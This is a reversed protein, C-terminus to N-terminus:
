LSYTHIYTAFAKRSEADGAEDRPAPGQQVPAAGTEPLQKVKSKLGGKLWM